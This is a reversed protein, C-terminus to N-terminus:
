NKPTGFINAVVSSFGNLWYQNNLGNTCTIEGNPSDASLVAASGNDGSYRWSWGTDEQISYTGVPLEYITVSDNGTISAETYKDNGKNVIFVYPESSDGGTKTITLTCTKVHLLFESGTPLTDTRDTCAQHQFTVYQTVDFTGIKVTVDVPIDQKTAITGNVVGTGPTYQFSLAPAAGMTTADAAAGNHQWSTSALNGSFDTPVSDGYYVSSDKYTLEPKFVNIKNSGTRIKETAAGETKKPSVTVTISYTSDDTLNTLDSSIVKGSADKVEVTINVYENQWTELGYNNNAKSLDLSVDGVKVTAGSKLTDVSVNQLLYVNKAAPTVTVDNIAIDVQPREFYMIPETASSNEYVGASANTYVGNGGLFGPKPVVDFSIVLKSGRYTKNGNETVTGCWNESFNFGTVSVQGDIITATAGMANPNKNWEGEGTYSYTELTIDNASADKPLQFSPAIIDKVVSSSGLTATTGGSEINNSIQQFINNLATSNSATLYYGAGSSLNRMFTNTNDTGNVNAGEFIGVTYVTAGYTNKTTAAQTIAANATNSDYGSWGPQGDTFVVVVRNRKEGAPIPDAKFIGNAMEVGLNTLTGGNADLADISATVNAVDSPDDMDMFATSYVGQAATGYRYGNAGVFVETNNYNYNQGNWTNGSAFGVVAIRHNVDTEAAKTAVSNSFQSVADKLAQLKTRDTSTTTLSYYTKTPKTNDGMSTEIAVENGGADVYFYDYINTVGSSAYFFRSKDVQTPNYGINVHESTGDAYTYTYGGSTISGTVYCRAYTGDDLLQYLVGANSWRVMDSNWLCDGFPWRNTVCTTWTINETDQKIRMSVRVFSGDSLQYWINDSGGNQRYPYNEMNSNNRPSYSGSTITDFADKMSGSQDLVLIIDTPVYETVETIIKEGTAYAELTITYSGDANATATKSIEMGDDDATAYAVTSPTVVTSLLVLSLMFSIIKKKMHAEKTEVRLLVWLHLRM